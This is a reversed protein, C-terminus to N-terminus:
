RRRESACPRRGSQRLGGGNVRLQPGVALRVKQNIDAFPPVDM